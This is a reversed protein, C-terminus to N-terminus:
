GPNVNIKVKDETREFRVKAEIGIADLLQNLTVDKVQIRIRREGVDASLPLPHFTIQLQQSLAEVVTKLDGELNLEYKATDLKKLKDSRQKPSVQIKKAIM